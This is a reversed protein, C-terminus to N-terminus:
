IPERTIRIMVDLSLTCGEAFGPNGIWAYRMSKVGDVAARILKQKTGHKMDATPGAYSINAPVGAENVDYRVVMTSLPMDKGAMYYFALADGPFNFKGNQVVRLESPKCPRAAAPIAMRNDMGGLEAKDGVCAAAALAAVCVYGFRM